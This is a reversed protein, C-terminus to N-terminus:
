VNKGWGIKMSISVAASPDQARLEKMRKSYYEGAEGQFIPDSFDSFRWRRLLEEYSASDIYEKDTALM